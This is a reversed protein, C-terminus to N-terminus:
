DHRKEGLVLPNHLLNSLDKPYMLYRHSNDELDGASVMDIHVYLPPPHPIPPPHQHQQYRIFLPTISQRKPLLHLHSHSHHQINVLLCQATTTAPFARQLRYLLCPHSFIMKLVREDYRTIKIMSFFSSNDGKQIVVCECVDLSM